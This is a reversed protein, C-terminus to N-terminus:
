ILLTEAGNFSIFDEVLEKLILSKLKVSSARKFNKTLGSIRSLTRHGRCYTILSFDFINSWLFRPEPILFFVNWM